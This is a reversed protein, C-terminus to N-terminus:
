LRNIRQQWFHQHNRLHRTGLGVPRLNWIGYNLGIRFGDQLTFPTFASLNWQTHQGGRRDTILNLPYPKKGLASHLKDVSNQDLGLGHALARLFQQELHTDATGVLLAASYVENRAHAPTDAALKQPDVPEGLADTLISKEAASADNLIEFLAAQETQDISGDARAMQVMARLVTYGENDRVPTSTAFQTDLATNTQPDSMRGNIASSLMGIMTGITGANSAANVSAGLGSPSSTANGKLATKVGDIGGMGKFADMGKKAAFALALKTIMRQISM